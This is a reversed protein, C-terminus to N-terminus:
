LQITLMLKGEDLPEFALRITTSEAAAIIRKVRTDGRVARLPQSVIRPFLVIREPHLAPGAVHDALTYDEEDIFHQWDDLDARCYQCTSLHAEIRARDEPTDLMDMQYQALELSSPCDKRFLAMRLGGELRQARALREACYPCHLVHDRTRDDAEGDILASLEDETLEPPRQCTKM